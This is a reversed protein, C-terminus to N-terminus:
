VSSDKPLEDSCGGLSLASWWEIGRAINRIGVNGSKEQTLYWKSRTLDQPNRKQIKRLCVAM